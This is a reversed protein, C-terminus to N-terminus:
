VGYASRLSRRTFGIMRILGSLELRLVDKGLESETVVRGKDLAETPLEIKEVTEYIYEYDTMNNVLSSITVRSRGVPSGGRQTVGM